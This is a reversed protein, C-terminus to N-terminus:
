RVTKLTNTTGEQMPDEEGREVAVWRSEDLSMRLAALVRQAALGDAFSPGTNSNARIDAVFREVLRANYRALLGLPFSGADIAPDYPPTFDLLVRPEPDDITAAVLQESRRTTPDLQWALSGRSGYVRVGGGGIPLSAWGTRFLAEGGGRYTGIWSSADDVDVRGPAGGETFREAIFTAGHGVIRDMPGGLWLALDITHSGYEVFVGGNAHARRMKWHLPRAPDIFQANLTMGEFLQVDGIYGAEILQKMREVVPSFRFLFGVKGFRGRARLAAMMADAQPVDYALPKECLVHAGAALAQLVLDHHTETPTVLVVADLGNVGRFLSAADSFTHPIGYQEAIAPLAETRADVIAVVEVDARAAFAPLHARTGWAGMGIIAVRLRNEGM